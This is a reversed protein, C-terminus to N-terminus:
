DIFHSNLVLLQNKVIVSKNFQGIQKYLLVCCAEKYIHRLATFSRNTLYIPIYM